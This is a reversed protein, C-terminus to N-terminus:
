AKTARSNQRDVGCGEAWYYPRTIMRSRYQQDVGCPYAGCQFVCCYIGSQDFNWVGVPTFVEKDFDISIHFIQGVKSFYIFTLLSDSLKHSLIIFILFKEM